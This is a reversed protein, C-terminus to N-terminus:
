LCYRENNDLEQYIKQREEKDRESSFGIASLLMGGFGNEQYFLSAFELQRPYFGLSEWDLLCIRGDNL